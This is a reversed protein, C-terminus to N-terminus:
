SGHSIKNVEEAGLTQSNALDLSTVLYPILEMENGRSFVSLFILFPVFSGLKLLVESLLLPCTSWNINWYMVVFGM